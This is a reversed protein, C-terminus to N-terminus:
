FSLDAIRRRIIVQSIPALSDSRANAAASLEDGIGYALMNGADLDAFKEYATVVTMERSAAGVGRIALWGGKVKGDTLAKQYGPVVVKAFHDAYEQVRGPTPARRITVRQVAADGTGFTRDSRINSMYSSQFMIAKRLKANLAAAAEAGLARVLPAPQDMDAWNPMETAITYEFSNGVVTSFTTRSKVGAKKQAPIVENRQLALWETVMDPHLRVVQIYYRTNTPAAPAQQQAFVSAPLLSSVLTLAAAANRVRSMTRM